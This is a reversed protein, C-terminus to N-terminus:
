SCRIGGSHPTQQITAPMIGRSHQRLSSSFFGGCEQRAGCESCLELYENKWDSISRRALPWLSHDLTCLQHNYISINMRHCVLKEVAALLEARYDLPDVWVRDLNAKAFGIPELGMLAVHEAFPLNRVIFRALDPLREVTSQCLVVRLEVRQRFRRLNMIGRITQDFAGPAEAIADHIEPLDSHLPIEFMLDPYEIAAVERCLSMYNFMRGNTLVRVATSPLSTKCARIVQLLANPLLTPEGGSIGLEVTEPAILPIADLWVDAWSSKERPRPSQACMSCHNNCLETLMVTNSTSCRRFLVNMRGRRPDCHVIDGDALYSLEASLPTVSIGGMSSPADGQRDTCWFCARFGALSLDTVSSVVLVEQSRLSEPRNVDTTVRAVFPEANWCTPLQEFLKLM